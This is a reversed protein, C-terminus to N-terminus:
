ATFNRSIWFFNRQPPLMVSSDAAAPVESPPNAPLEPGALGSRSTYTRLCGCALWPMLLERTSHTFM